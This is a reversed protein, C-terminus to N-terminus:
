MLKESSSWRNECGDDLDQQGSRVRAVSGLSQSGTLSCPTYRHGCEPTAHMSSCQAVQATISHCTTRGSPGHVTFSDLMWRDACKPSTPYPRQLALAPHKDWDLGDQQEKLM